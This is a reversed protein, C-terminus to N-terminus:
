NKQKLPTREVDEIHLGPAYTYMVPTRGLDPCSSVRSERLPHLEHDEEATLDMVEAKM